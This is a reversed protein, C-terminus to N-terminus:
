SSQKFQDEYDDQAKLVDELTLGPESDFNQWYWIYIGSRGEDRINDILIGRLTDVTQDTEGAAFPQRNYLMQIKIAQYADLQSFDQFYLAQSLEDRSYEPNSPLPGFQSDYKNRVDVAESPTLTYLDEDYKHRSDVAFPADYLRQAIEDITELDSLSTGEPLPQRDYVDEVQWAQDIDLEDYSQSYLAQAIDERTIQGSQSESDGSDSTSVPRYVEFTEVRETTPTVLAFEYEGPTYSGPLAVSFGHQQSAGVGLSLERTRVTESASFEGDGNTDLRLEVTGTREEDGVNEVITSVSLSSGVM